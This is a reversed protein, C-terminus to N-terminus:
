KSPERDQPIVVGWSIYEAENEVTNSDMAEPLTATETYYKEGNYLAALNVSNAMQVLDDGLVRYYIGLFPLRGDKLDDDWQSSCGRLYEIIIAGRRSDGYFLNVGRVIGCFGYNGEWDPNAASNDDAQGYVSSDYLVFYDGPAPTDNGAQNTYTRPPQELNPILAGKGTDIVLREFDEWKGIRYGDLRGIGAYHSYWVDSLSELLTEFPAEGPYLSITQDAGGLEGYRYLECSALVCLTLASLFFFKVV